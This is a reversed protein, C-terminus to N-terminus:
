RPGREREGRGRQRGQRRGAQSELVVGAPSAGLTALVARYCEPEPKVSRLSYSFAGHEFRAAVPVGAASALRGVDSDPQPTCIVGGYDFLVWNM